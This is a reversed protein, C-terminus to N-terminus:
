EEEDPAYDEPVYCALPIDDALIEGDESMLFSGEHTFLGYPGRIRDKKLLALMEAVARELEEHSAIRDSM